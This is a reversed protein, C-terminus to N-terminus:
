EYLFLLFECARVTASRVKMPLQQVRVELTTYTRSSKGGERVALLSVLLRVSTITRLPSGLQNQRIHQLM